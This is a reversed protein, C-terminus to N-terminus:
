MVEVSKESLVADEFKIAKTTLLHCLRIIISYSNLVKEYTYIYSKCSVIYNLRIFQEYIYNVRTMFCVFSSLLIILIVPHCATLIASNYSSVNYSPSKCHRYNNFMPVM